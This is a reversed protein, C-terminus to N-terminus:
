LLPPFFFLLQIRPDWSTASLKEAKQKGVESSYGPLQGARRLKRLTTNEQCRQGDREQSIGREGDALHPHDELSLEQGM